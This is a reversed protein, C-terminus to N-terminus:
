SPRRRSAAAGPPSSMPANVLAPNGTAEAILATEDVASTAATLEGAVHPEEGPLQARVASAGLAGADRAVQVQRAALRHLAEDDWLELAVINGNRSTSLSLRRGVDEDAPRGRRAAARAGPRLTPAAAAYGETLRNAFADLLM